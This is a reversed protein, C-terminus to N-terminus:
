IAEDFGNTFSKEPCLLSENVSYYILSMKSGGYIFAAM